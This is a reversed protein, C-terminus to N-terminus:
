ELKQRTNFCKTVLSSSFTDARFITRFFIDRNYLSTKPSTGLISELHYCNWRRVSVPINFQRNNAKASCSTKQEESGLM